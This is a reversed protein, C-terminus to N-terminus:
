FGIKYPDFDDDGLGINFQVDTIVYSGLLETGEHDDFSFCGTPVLWQQDIHYRLLADPYPEERGTFPLHREFVFTPRQDIQGEGVYHLELEGNLRGRRTYKIILQLTRRFGFQDLTRRSAAKARPGDIPQKLKPIFFKILAGAPKFWALERGSQDTWAHEVYLARKAATANKVWEMDVSFPDERFRVASEQVPTMKGAVLQQTTFTCSYDRVNRRDYASRCHILFAEPDRRALEAVSDERGVGEDSDNIKESVLPLYAVLPLEIQHCQM